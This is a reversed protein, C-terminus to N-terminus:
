REAFGKHSDGRGARNAKFEKICMRADAVNHGISAARAVRRKAIHAERWVTVRWIGNGVTFGSGQCEAELERLADEHLLAVGVADYVNAVDMGAHPRIAVVGREVSSVANGCAKRAEAEESEGGIALWDEEVRGINVSNRGNMAAPSARQKVDRLGGHFGHLAGVVGFWVLENCAKGWAYPRFGKLHFLVDGCKKTARNGGHREERM